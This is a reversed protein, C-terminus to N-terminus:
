IVTYFKKLPAELHARWNKMLKQFYILYQEFSVSFFLKINFILWVIFAVRYFWSNTSLVRVKKDPLHLEHINVAFNSLVQTKSFKANKLM